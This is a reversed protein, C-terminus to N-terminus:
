CRFDIASEVPGMRIYGREFAKNAKRGVAEVKDSQTGRRASLKSPLRGRVFIEMGDRAAKRQSVDWRWFFLSSGQNWEWWSADLGKALAISGTDGDELLELSSEEKEDFTQSALQFYDM